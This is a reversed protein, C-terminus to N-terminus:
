FYKVVLERAQMIAPTVYYKCVWARAHMYCVRLSVLAHKASCKMLTVTCIEFLAKHCLFKHLM